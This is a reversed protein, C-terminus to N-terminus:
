FMPTANFLTTPYNKKYQDLELSMYFRLVNFM